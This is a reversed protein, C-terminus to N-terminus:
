FSSHRWSNRRGSWFRRYLNQHRSTCRSFLHIDLPHLHHLHAQRSGREVAKTKRPVEALQSIFPAQGAPFYRNLPVPLQYREVMKAYSPTHETISPLACGSTSAHFPPAQSLRHHREDKSCHLFWRHQMSPQRRSILIKDTLLFSRLADRTVVTHHSIILRSMKSSERRRRFGSDGSKSM